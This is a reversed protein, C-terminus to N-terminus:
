HIHHMQPQHMRYGRLTDYKEIQEPSLIDLMQLHANLHVFRLTGQLESIQMVLKQLSAKRLNRQAFRTNLKKEAEVIQKGVRVANKHMEQYVQETRNEQEQTLGLQESLELVHKPGPHHNLEAAKAMGMGHGSLYGQIEKASLSKNARAQEGTYPSVVEQGTVITVQLVVCWLICFTRKM